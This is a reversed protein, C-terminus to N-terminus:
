TDIGTDDSLWELAEEENNHVILNKRGSFALVAQLIVKKIGEIGLVATKKNYPKAALAFKKLGEAVDKDYHAGRVDNVTLGEGMPFTKIIELADDMVKLSEEPTCDTFCEHLIKKGNHEILNVGCKKGEQNIFDLKGM